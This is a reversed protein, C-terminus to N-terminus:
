QFLSFNTVQWYAGMGEESDLEWVPADHPLPYGVSFADGPVDVGGDEAEVDVEDGEGEELNQTATFSLAGSLRAVSLISESYDVVLQQTQRSSDSSEPIGTVTHETLAVGTAMEALVQGSHRIEEM